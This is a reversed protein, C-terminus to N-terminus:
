MLFMEPQPHDKNSNCAQFRAQSVKLIMTYDPVLVRTSM